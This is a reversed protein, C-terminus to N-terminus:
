SHYEVSTGSVAEFTYFLVPPEANEADANHHSISQKTIDNFFKIRHCKVGNKEIAIAM